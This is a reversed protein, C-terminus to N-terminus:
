SGNRTRPHDEAERSEINAIRFQIVDLTAATKALIVAVKQNSKELAVVRPNMPDKPGGMEALAVGIQDLRRILKENIASQAAWAARARTGTWRDSMKSAAFGGGSLMMVLLVVSLPQGKLWEM